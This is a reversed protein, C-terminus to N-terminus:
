PEVYLHYYTIAYSTQRERSNMKAFLVVPVQVESTESFAM